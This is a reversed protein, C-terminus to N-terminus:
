YLSEDESEWNAVEERNRRHQEIVTDVRATDQKLCWGGGIEDVLQESKLRQLHEVTTAESMGTTESLESETKAERVSLEDLLLNSPSRFEGDEGHATDVTEFEGDDPSRQRDGDINWSRKHETM